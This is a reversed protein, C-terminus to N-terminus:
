TVKLSFYFTSGAGPASEAWIEGNHRKIIEYSLYLGIGFGAIHKDGANSSRYYREFLRPLEEANIGMGQDSVSVTMEGDRTVCAISITTGSPSYKVANSILNTMVQGIKERDAIIVTKEVPEFIFQHSSGQVATEDEVEKILDAMDFETLEIHIKSTELRSVNLFGNILSTMKNAQKAAKDLMGVALQDGQQAAKKQLVQVYSNMSTLPTKLEHSVMSIFDSKRQDEDKMRQIDTTSGVWMMIEGKDNLIPSAINLHWRYNGDKDRFRMESETAVGKAAAEALQAQFAPVEEPHMMQHYGFDRMQEFTMGAYELWQKNFFTVQGTPLANSIKAPVLDALYRFHKESEEVKQAALYQETIDMVVGTFASFTGSPDAKLNGIARLWRLREDHLGVVPYTVDYDGNYYIAKELKETVFGRYEDTIQNLAQEISLPEDAYYGFLEKLRANTIFERTESHIFWTGFNAANIALRLAIESKELKQHAEELQQNVLTLQDNTATLEDNIAAQAENISAMEENLAQLKESSNTLSEELEKRETIDRTVGAIAEVDGQSDFVPTFIYDYVRRGLVSHPFSVEGRIAKKTARVQDIEREHMEAHWPEYGNELLTRGIADEWTKGWMELLAKNAYTFRYDLGFVYMLDPVNSTITEYLRNLEELAHLRKENLQIDQPSNAKDYPQTM